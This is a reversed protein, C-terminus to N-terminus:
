PQEPCGPKKREGAIRKLVRRLYTQPEIGNPKATGILSYMPVAREGGANSGASLFNHLGLAVCCLAREAASNDIELSGDDTSAIASLRIHLSM